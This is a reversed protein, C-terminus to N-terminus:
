NDGGSLFADAKSLASVAPSKPMTRIGPDAQKLSGEARQAGSRMRFGVVMLYGGAALHVGSCLGKNEGGRLTLGAGVFGAAQVTTEVM